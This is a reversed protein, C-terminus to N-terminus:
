RIDKTNINDRKLLNDIRGFAYIFTSRQVSFFFFFFENWMGDGWRGPYTRVRVEDAFGVSKRRGRVPVEEEYYRGVDDYPRHSPRRPHRPNAQCRGLGACNRHGYPCPPGGDYNPRYGKLYPFPDPRRARTLPPRPARTPRNPRTPSNDRNTSHCLGM